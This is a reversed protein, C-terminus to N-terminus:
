LKSSGFKGPSTITDISAASTQQSTLSDSSYASNEQSSILDRTSSCGMQLSRGLTNRAANLAGLADKVRKVQISLPLDVMSNDKYGNHVDPRRSLLASFYQINSLGIFLIMETYKSADYVGKFAWDNHGRKIESFNWKLSRWLRRWSNQLTSNRGETLDKRFNNLISKLDGAIARPLLTLFFLYRASVRINSILVQLLEVWADRYEEMAPLITIGVCTWIPSSIYYLISKALRNISIMLRHGELKTERDRVIASSSPNPDKEWAQAIMNIFARLRNRRGPVPYPTNVMSCPPSTYQLAPDHNHDSVPPSSRSAEDRVSLPDKSECNVIKDSFQTRSGYHLLEHGGIAKVV